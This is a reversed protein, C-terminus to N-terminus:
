PRALLAAGPFVVLWWAGGHSRAEGLAEGWSAMTGPPAVHLFDVAAETLVVSAVGFAVAVVAPGIANPLVHRRFVRAPSAGLARAATVYDSALAQLVEARVLRALDTWRTLAITWVLTGTTPHPVVACVVLVLVLTPIATLSEVARTVLSDIAGGAFGALAGLAVGIAVLVASAGLGLELATRAGHVVRAFLDRGLADTGFPHGQAFPPLLAQAADDPVDLPGHPVLPPLLWDGPGRASEMGQCDLGALAPPRTVSPLVYVTGRWHCLIPLDSALVDALAAVFVLAALVVAGARASRSRALQSLAIRTMTVYPAAARRTAFISERVISSGEETTARSKGSESEHGSVHAERAPAVPDRPVRPDLAGYAIDSMVLGLTVLAAVALIVAMLWASDHAEIARLTEFGIGPLAFVEEVVFAGGLLAPLQLGVGAHGRADARKATRARRPGAVGPRGERTRHSRLGEAGRRADCRAALAVDDGDLRDGARRCRAGSGRAGGLGYSAAVRRLLEAVGFTPTAYLVFMLASTVVDFPGGRRWAGLAGVPIAIAWSVLM